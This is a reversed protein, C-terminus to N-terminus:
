LMTWGYLLFCATQASLAGQAMVGAPQPIGVPM